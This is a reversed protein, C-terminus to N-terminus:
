VSQGTYLLGIFLFVVLHLFLVTPLILNFCILSVSINNFFIYKKLFKKVGLLSKGYDLIDAVCLPKSPQIDKGSSPLGQLSSSTLDKNLSIKM